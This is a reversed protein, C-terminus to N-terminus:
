IVEVDDRWGIYPVKGLLKSVKAITEFNVSGGKLLKSTMRESAGLRRKLENFGVQEKEMYIELEKQLSEQLEEVCMKIYAVDQEVEKIDEKSLHKKSMEEVYNMSM